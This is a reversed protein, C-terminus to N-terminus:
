KKAGQKAKPLVAIAVAEVYDAEVQDGKKVVKFHDPNKVDLVVINGSPGKLTITKKKPNVDVVDAMITVQRGVAGGPKEGPKSRVMDTSESKSRVGGGKVLNLTLAQVYQVVVEDGVKIQDFNRVEDGADVDFTAGDAGKLTVTRTKANIATVVASAKVTHAVVAKGPTSATVVAGTPAQQAFGPLAVLSMACAGTLISKYPNM